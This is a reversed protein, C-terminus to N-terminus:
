FQIFHSGLFTSYTLQGKYLQLGLPGPETISTAGMPARPAGGGNIYRYLPRLCLPLCLVPAYGAHYAWLQSLWLM